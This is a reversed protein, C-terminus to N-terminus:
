QQLKKMCPKKLQVTNPPCYSKVCSTTTQWVRFLYCFYQNNFLSNTTHQRPIRNNKILPARTPCISHVSHYFLLLVFVFHDKLHNTMMSSYEIYFCRAKSIKIKLLEFLESVHLFHPFTM